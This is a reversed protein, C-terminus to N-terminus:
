DCLIKISVYLVRNVRLKREDDLLSGSLSLDPIFGIIPRLHFILCSWPDTILCRPTQTEVLLQYLGSIFITDKSLFLFHLKCFYRRFLLGLYITTEGSVEAFVLIFTYRLLYLSYLCSCLFYLWTRGFLSYWTPVLFDTFYFYIFTQAGGSVANGSGIFSSCYFLIWHAVPFYEVQQVLHCYQLAGPSLITCSMFLEGTKVCTDRSLSSSVHWTTTGGYVHPVRRLFGSWLLWRLLSFWYNPKNCYPDQNQNQFSCSGM